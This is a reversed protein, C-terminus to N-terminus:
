LPYSRCEKIRNPIAMDSEFASSASEVEKPLLANLEEEFSEINLFVSTGSKILGQTTILAHDVLVLRPNQMSPYAASCPDDIYAFVYEHDVVKLLDKECFRSPHLEGDVILIKKAVQSVTNRINNKLNEELHRLDIPSSILGLSNVDQNHQEASQVHFTVLNAFFQLESCYSAMAIEVGKFGFDLSAYSSLFNSISSTISPCCM